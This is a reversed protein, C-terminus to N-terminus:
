PKVEVETAAVPQQMDVIVAITPAARERAVSIERNVIKSLYDSAASGLTQGSGFMSLFRGSDDRVDTNAFQVSWYGMYNVSFQLPVQLRQAITRLSSDASM